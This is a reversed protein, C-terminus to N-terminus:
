NIPDASTKHAAVFLMTTAHHRFDLNNHTAVITIPIDRL